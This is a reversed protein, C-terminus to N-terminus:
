IVTLRAIRAKSWDGREDWYLDNALVDLCGALSFEFAGGAETELTVQVHGIKVRDNRNLFAAIQQLLEM